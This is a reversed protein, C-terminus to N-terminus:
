KAAQIDSLAIRQGNVVINDVVYQRPKHAAYQGCWSIFDKLDSFKSTGYQVTGTVEEGSHLILTIEDTLVPVPMSVPVRRAYRSPTNTRAKTPYRGNTAM